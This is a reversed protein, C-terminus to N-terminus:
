ERYGPADNVDWMYQQDTGYIQEMLGEYEKYQWQEIKTEIRKIIINRYQKKPRCRKLKEKIYKISENNFFTDDEEILEDVYRQFIIPSKYNRYLHYALENRADQCITNNFYEKKCVPQIICSKCKNTKM